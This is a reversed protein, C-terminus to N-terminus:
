NTSNSISGTSTSGIRISTRVGTFKFANVGLSSAANTFQITTTATGLANTSIVVFQNTQAPAGNLSGSGSFYGYASNLQLKGNFYGAGQSGQNALIVPLSVGGNTNTAFNASGSDLVGSITKTNIAATVQGRLAQGAVFFVWSNASSSSTQSGNSYAFRFVGSVNTGRAAAQYTGDVGTVLPSGNSFPPPGGFSGAHATAIALSALLIRIFRKM